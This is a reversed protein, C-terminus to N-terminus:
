LLEKCLGQPNHLQNRVQQFHVMIRSIHHHRPLPQYLQLTDGHHTVVQLFSADGRTTEDRHKGKLKALFIFLRTISNYEKYDLIDQIDRNLGGLFRAMMADDTEVLGCRVLGTQLERYYDEVSSSGQKLRQLENLKDRAYYSPVYCQRM